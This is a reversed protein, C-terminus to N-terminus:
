LCKMTTKVYDYLRWKHTVFLYKLIYAAITPTKKYRKYEEIDVINMATLREKRTKMDSIANLIRDAYFSIPSYLNDFSSQDICFTKKLQFITDRYTNYAKVEYDIAKHQTSLSGSHIYYDYIISNSFSIFADTIYQSEILYQMMFICDEALCISSDFTIQKQEIIDRRYIKCFPFGYKHLGIDRWITEYNTILCRLNPFCLQEALKDDRYVQMGSVAMVAKPDNGVSEILASIYNQRVMDDSDVFMIWYGHSKKLGLNRAASPGKNEQRYAMVRSDFEAWKCCIPWSGDTSGDDILILEYEVCDMQLVSRICRELTTESNYIPVIISVLMTIEQPSESLDM